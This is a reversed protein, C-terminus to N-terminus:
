ETLKQEVEKGFFQALNMKIASCFDSLKCEPPPGINPVDGEIKILEAICIKTFNEGTNYGAYM